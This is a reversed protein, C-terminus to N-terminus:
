FTGTSDHSANRPRQACHSSRIEGIYGATSNDVAIPKPRTAHSTDGGHSATASPSITSSATTRVAMSKSM